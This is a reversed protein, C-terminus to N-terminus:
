KADKNDADLIERRCQDEDKGTRRARLWVLKAMLEKEFNLSKDGRRRGQYVDRQIRLVIGEPSDMATVTKVMMNEAVNILEYMIQPKVMANTLAVAVGLKARLSYQLMDMANMLGGLVQAHPEKMVQPLAELGAILLAQIDQLKKKRFDNPDSLGDRLAQLDAKIDALRRQEMEWEVDVAKKPKAKREGEPLFYWKLEINETELKEKVQELQWRLEREQRLEDKTANLMAEHKRKAAILKEQADDLAERTTRLAAQLQEGGGTAALAAAHEAERESLAARLREQLSQARKALEDREQQLEEAVSSSDLRYRRLQNEARKLAEREDKLDSELDVVRRRLATLQEGEAARAKALAADHAAEADRLQRELEGIRREFEQKELKHRIRAKDADEEVGLKLDRLLAEDRERKEDAARIRRARELEKEENARRTRELDAEFDAKQRAFDRTMAAFRDSMDALERQLREKESSLSQASESGQRTKAMWLDLKTQLERQKDEMDSAQTKSRVDAAAKFRELESIRTECEAVYADLKDCRLRLEDREREARAKGSKIDAEVDRSAAVLAQAESAQERFREKAKADKDWTQRLESLEAALVDREKRAARREHELAAQLQDREDSMEDLRQQLKRAGDKARDLKDGKVASGVAGFEDLAAVKSELTRNKAELEVNVKRLAKLEGFTTKFDENLKDTLATLEKVEDEYRKKLRGTAFLLRSNAQSCCGLEVRV